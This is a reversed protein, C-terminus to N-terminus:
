RCGQTSTDRRSYRQHGSEDRGLSEELREYVEIARSDNVDYDDEDIDDEFDDDEPDNLM